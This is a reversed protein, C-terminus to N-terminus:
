PYNSGFLKPMQNKRPYRKDQYKRDVNGNGKGGKTQINPGAKKPWIDMVDKPHRQSQGSDPFSSEETKLQRGYAAAATPIAM